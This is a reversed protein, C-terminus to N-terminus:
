DQVLEPLPMWTLMDAPTCAVRTVLMGHDSTLSVVEDRDLVNSASLRPRLPLFTYNDSSECDPRMGGSIAAQADVAGIGADLIDSQVRADCILEGIIPAHSPQDAVFPQEAIGVVVPRHGIRAALMLEEAAEQDIIVESRRRRETEIELGGAM